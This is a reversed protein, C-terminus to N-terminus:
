IDKNYNYYPEYARLISDREMKMTADSKYVPFDFPATLDSLRWPKGQECRLNTSGDRPMMWCIIAITLISIGTKVWFDRWSYDDKLVSLSM